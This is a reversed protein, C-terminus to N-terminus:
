NDVRTYNGYGDHIYDGGDDGKFTTGGFDTQKLKTGDSLTVDYYPDPDNTHSSSHSSSSSSSGGGDSSLVAKIGGFFLFLLLGAIVIFALVVFAYIGLILLGAFLATGLIPRLITVWWAESPNFCIVLINGLGGLVLGIITMVNMVSEGTEKTVCFDLIFFVLGFLFGLGFGVLENGGYFTSRDIGDNTSM